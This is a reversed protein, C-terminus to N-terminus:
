AEASFDVLGQMSRILASEIEPAERGIIYDPIWQRDREGMANAVNSGLARYMSFSAGETESYGFEAYEGSRRNLREVFANRYEGPGEVDFRSDEALRALDMALSSVFSNRQEASASPYVRRDAVHILFCLLEELVEVRQVQTTTEFNENELNLVVQSAAKWITAAIANAMQAITRPRNNQNWRKKVRM